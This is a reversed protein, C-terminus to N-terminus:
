VTCLCPRAGWVQAFEARLTDVLRHDKEVSTVTAGAALLYRTLNGTGPGVELVLDGEQIDARCLSTDPHPAPLCASAALM